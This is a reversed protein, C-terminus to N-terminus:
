TGPGAPCADVLWARRRAGASRPYGMRRANRRWARSSVVSSTMSRNSRQRARDETRASRLSSSNRRAFALVVLSATRSNPRDAADHEVRRDGVLLHPRRDVALGGPFREALSHLPGLGQGTASVIVPEAEQGVAVAVQTLERRLEEGGERESGVPGPSGDELGYGAEAVQVGPPLPLQGRVGGDLEDRGPPAGVDDAPVALDITVVVLQPARPVGPRAAPRCRRAPSWGGTRRGRSTGSRM